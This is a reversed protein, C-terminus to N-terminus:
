ASIRPSWSSSPAGGTRPFADVVGAALDLYAQHFRDVPPVAAEALWQRAQDASLGRAAFFDYFGGIEAIQVLRQEDGHDEGFHACMGCQGDHVALM